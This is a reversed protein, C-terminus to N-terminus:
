RGYAPLIHREVALALVAMATGYPAYNGENNGPPSPWSGDPNQHRVLVQELKPGHDAWQAPACRSLGSAEYYSQYFFWTGQWDPPSRVIRAAVARCLPDSDQGAIAFALLALGRLAPNDQGPDNYGVKGDGRTLRRVYAIANDIVSRPIDIGVQQAAHCSILQWGSLSLDADGAQPEYHWGGRHKDAKPVQAAAITVGIAKRVATTVDEELREDRTMGMAQTLMLTAIGHGYMRSGERAGFYGGKDQLSLVFRIGRVLREGHRPDDPTIGAALHALVALGTVAVPCQEGIRGDAAQRSRLHALGAAIARDRPDDRALIDLASRPDEAMALGACLMALPLPAFRM